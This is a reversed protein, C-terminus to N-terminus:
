LLAVLNLGNQAFLFFGVAAYFDPRNEEGKGVIWEWVSEMILAKLGVKLWVPLFFM